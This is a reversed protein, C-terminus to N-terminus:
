AREGKYEETGTNTGGDGNGRCLASDGNGRCLASDGNGRCLASDGKGRCLATDDPLKGVGSRRQKEPPTEGLVLVAGLV